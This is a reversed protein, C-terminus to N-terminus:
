PKPVQFVARVPRHDSSQPTDECYTDEPFLIDAAAPWTKAPGAVFVFDLISEFESCTTKVLFEPKVWRFAGEGPDTLIDFGKDRLQGQSRVDWDFNYDGVAIVPLSQARAWTNLAEAQRWRTDQRKGGIGRYFHTVVFWFRQGTPKFVFEAVLPARNARGVQATLLEFHGVYDLRQTDYLIGLRDEGGTNGIIGTYNSGGHAEAAEELVRLWGGSQLESFGWLNAPATAQMVTQALHRPEADGSEVNFGVVTLQDAPGAPRPACGQFLLLALGVGVAQWSSVM